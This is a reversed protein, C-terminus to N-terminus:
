RTLLIIGSVALVAGVLHVPKVKMGTMAGYSFILLVVAVTVVPGVRGVPFDRLTRIYFLMSSAYALM